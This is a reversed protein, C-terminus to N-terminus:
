PEVQLVQILGMMNGQADEVHSIVHCHWVWTGPRDFSVLVDYTDGPMLDLTNAKMPRPLPQGDKAIITFEAGHLHMPHVQDGVNMLRFRATEGAKLKIPVTHPFSKGNIVFGLRGDAIMLSYDKDYKWPEPDKPEVIFTGYLGLGKQKMTNFHTHYMHTGAPEAVFEYVFEGGPPIPDQTVMPVGDMKNPVALGHWHVATPEPLRNKVIIRVRDGEKVRIQPGPVTGNFTWAEYEKEGVSWKVPLATLEFVKVGDEVRYEALQQGEPLTQQGEAGTGAPYITYEAAAETGSRGGASGADSSGAGAAPAADTGGSGSAGAMPYFAWLLLGLAVAGALVWWGKGRRKAETNGVTM